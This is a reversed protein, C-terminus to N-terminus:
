FVQSAFETFYIERVMSQSLISNVLTIIENKLRVKGPINAIDDFSKTSLLILIGDRIEARRSGVKQCDTNKHLKVKMGIRLHRNGLSGNLNVTFTGLNFLPPQLGFTDRVTPLPVKYGKFGIDEFPSACRWFNWTNRNYLSGLFFSGLFIFFLMILILINRAKVM